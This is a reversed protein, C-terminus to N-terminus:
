PDKRKCIFKLYMNTFIFIQLQDDAVLINIKNKIKKNKMVIVKNLTYNFFAIINKKIMLHYLM